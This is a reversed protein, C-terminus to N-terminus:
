RSHCHAGTWRTVPVALNKTKGCFLAVKNVTQYASACMLNILSRYPRLQSLIVIVTAKEQESTVHCLNIGTLSISHLSCYIEHPYALYSTPSTATTQLGQFMGLGCFRIKKLLIFPLCIKKVSKPISSNILKNHLITFFPKIRSLESM